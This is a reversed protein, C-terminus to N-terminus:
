SWEAAKALIAASLASLSKSKIAMLRLAGLTRTATHIQEPLLARAPDREKGSTQHPFLLLTGGTGIDSSWTGRLQGEPTLTCQAEIPGAVVGEGVQTPTGRLKLSGNEFKGEIGYVIVGSQDDRFRLTGKLDEDDGSLEVFINGTNTGFVKGAWLRGIVSSM